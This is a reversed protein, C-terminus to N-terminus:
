KCHMHIIEICCNILKLWLHSQKLNMANSKNEKKNEQKKICLKEDLIKLCQHKLMIMNFQKSKQNINKESNVKM